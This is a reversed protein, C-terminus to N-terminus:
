HPLLFSFGGDIGPQAKVGFVEAINESSLVSDAPGCAYPRGSRMLLAADCHAAISNLDHLVAAVALGERSLEKLLRMTELSHRLDLHSTPEDLLLLRPRQCLAQAIFVRQREGSSLATLPRAAFALMGVRKLAQEAAAMDEASPDRWWSARLMKGMLVTEIVSFRYIIEPESPLVGMTGARAAGALNESPRDLISVTGSQPKLLGALLRLLTSKGSGNPGAVATFEGARLSLSVGDVVNHGNYAFVLNEAHLLIDSSSM